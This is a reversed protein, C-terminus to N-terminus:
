AGNQERRAVELRSRLAIARLIAGLAPDDPWPLDDALEDLERLAPAPDEGALMNRQLKTLVALMAKGRKGAARDHESQAEVTQLALMSDLDLGALSSLRAKQASPAMQSGVSFPEEPPRAGGRVMQAPGGGGGPKVGEVM